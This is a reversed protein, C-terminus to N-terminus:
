IREGCEPCRPESLGKLIYGCKLCHLYGDDRVARPRVWVFVVLAALWAPTALLLLIVYRALEEGMVKSLLQWTAELHRDLPGHPFATFGVVLLMVLTAASWFAALSLLLAWYRPRSPTTQPESM